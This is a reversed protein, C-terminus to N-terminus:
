FLMYVGSAAIIVAFLVDTFKGSLKGLLLAGIIGGILGGALLWFHHAEFSASGTLFYIAASAICLPLIVAISTAHANKQELGLHSLAFVAVIGGGSGLLGNIAGILAGCILERLTKHKNASNKM